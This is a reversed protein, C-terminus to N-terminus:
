NPQMLQKRLQRLQTSVSADIIKDEYRVVFGGLISPDLIPKLFVQRQTKQGVMKQIEGLIGDNLEVATRVEALVIGHHRRYLVEFQQLIVAFIAERRKRLVIKIFKSLVPSVQGTLTRSIVADKKDISVVPSELLRAFPRNSGILDLIAVADNHLTELDNRELGLDFLSQAYRTAVRTEAM